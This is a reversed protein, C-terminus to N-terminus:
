VATLDRPCAEGGRVAVTNADVMGVSIRREVCMKIFDEYIDAIINILSLLDSFHSAGTIGVSTVKVELNADVIERIVRNIEKRINHYAVLQLIDLM